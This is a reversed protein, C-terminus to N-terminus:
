KTFMRQACIYVMHVNLFCFTSSNTLNLYKRVTSGTISCNFYFWMYIFYWKRSFLLYLNEIMTKILVIIIENIRHFMKYIKLMNVKMHMGQSVQLVGSTRIM